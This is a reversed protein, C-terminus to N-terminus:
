VDSEEVYQKLDESVEDDIIHLKQTLARNKLKDHIKTIVNLICTVTRNKLPTTLINSADYHYAVM